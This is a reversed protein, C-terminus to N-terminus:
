ECDSRVRTIAADLKEMASTAATVHSELLELYKSEFEQGKQDRWSERTEKWHVMLQQTLTAIQTRTARVSM